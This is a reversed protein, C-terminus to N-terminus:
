SAVEGPWRRNAEARRRAKLPLKDGRDMWKLVRGLLRERVVRPEEDLFARADAKAGKRMVSMLRKAFVEDIRLGMVDLFKLRRAYRDALDSQSADIASGLVTLLRDFDAILNPDRADQGALMIPLDYGIHVLMGLALDQLIFTPRSKLYADVVLWVDPSDISRVNAPEGPLTGALVAEMAAFFRDAFAEVMTAMTEPSHFFEAQAQLKAILARNVDIYITAFVSLKNHAAELRHRVDEIKSAVVAIRAVVPTMRDSDAHPLLAVPERAASVVPTLSFSDESARNAGGDRAREPPASRVSEDGNTNDASARRRAAPFPWTMVVDDTSPAFLNNKAGRRKPVGESQCRKV